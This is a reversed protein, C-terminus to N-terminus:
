MSIIPNINDVSNPIHSFYVTDEYSPVYSAPGFTLSGPEYFTPKAMTNSIPIQVWNGSQDIVNVVDLSLNLNQQAKLDDLTDHYTVNSDMSDYKLDPLIIQMDDPLSTSGPAIGYSYVDPSPSMENGYGEKAITIFDDGLYVWHLIMIVLFVLSLILLKKRISLSRIFSLYSM